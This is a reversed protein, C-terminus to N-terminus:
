SDEERYADIMIHVCDKNEDEDYYFLPDEHTYCAHYRILTNEDDPNWKMGFYEYVQNLYLYGRIRFMDMIMHIVRNAVLMNFEYCEKEWKYSSRNFEFKHNM